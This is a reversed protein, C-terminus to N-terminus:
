NNFNPSFINKRYNLIFFDNFKDYALPDYIKISKPKILKMRKKDTKIAKNLTKSKYSEDLYKGDISLNIFKNKFLKSNNKNFNNNTKYLQNNYNLFKKNNKKINIIKNTRNSNFTKKFEKQTDNNSIINTSNNSDSNKLKTTNYTKNYKDKINNRQFKNNEMKKVTFNYFLNEYLFDHILFKTISNNSINKIKKNFLNLITLSNNSKKNKKLALSSKPSLKSKKTTSLIIRDRLGLNEITNFNKYNINETSLKNTLTQCHYNNKKFLDNNGNNYIRGKEESPVKIRHIVNQYINSEFKGKQYFIPNKSSYKTKKIFNDRNKERKVLDFIFQKHKQLREIISCIKKIELDKITINTGENFYFKNFTHNSLCYTHCNYTLCKCTLLCKRKVQKKIGSINIGEDNNENINENNDNNINVNKNESEQDYLYVDGLGIIDNKYLINLKIKRKEFILNNCEKSRFNKYVLLDDNQKIEDNINLFKNNKENEFNLKKLIKKYKIIMENVELVNKNTSLEFEGEAIIYTESCKEGEKFLNYNFDFIKDKFFNLYKKEFFSQSVSKFLSFYVLVDFINKKRKDISDHVLLNYENKNIYGLYNEEQTSIISSERTKANNELGDEGFTSGINLESYIEYSPIIVKKTKKMMAKIDNIEEDNIDNLKNNTYNKIINTNKIIEDSVKNMKIYEEPTVKVNLINNNYYNDIFKKEKKCKLIISNVEKAKEIVNDSSLYIGKKTTKNSLDEIFNDFNDYPIPYIISNYYNCQRIMETQNNLRLQLLFLIYEEETMYYDYHKLVLKKLQGNLVIYFNDALDGQQFIIENKSVKKLKMIKSLEKLIYDIDLSNQNKLLYIFEKLSKLYLYIPEFNREYNNNNKIRLEDICNNFLKISM